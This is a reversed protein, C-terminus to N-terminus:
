SDSRGDDPRSLRSVRFAEEYRIEQPFSGSRFRNWVMAQWSVFLGTAWRQLVHKRAVGRRRVVLEGAAAARPAHVRLLRQAAATLHLTQISM